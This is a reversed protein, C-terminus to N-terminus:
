KQLELLSTDFTNSIDQTRVIPSSETQQKMLDLYIGEFRRARKQIRAENAEIFFSDKADNLLTTETWFTDAKAARDVAEFASPQSLTPSVVAEQAIAPVCSFAGVTVLGWFLSRSAQQYFM